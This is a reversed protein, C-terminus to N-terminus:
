EQRELVLATRSPLYVILQHRVTGHDKVSRSVFQQGSAIRSHGGFREEDSDLLLAYKGPHVDVAYDSFSQSPHFNFLFVLDGREVAIIKDDNHLLLSRPLTTELLNRDRVLRIISRDFDALYHYKLNKNDRLSWQRRAYHYSWDNGERPFDVWEPHGFENGMFNLYGHAASALTALRIIKHLAIGRDVNIDEASKDMSTYMNAGILEFVATKGGVLAQDHSEVYSVTKEEGRRNVLEHWLHDMNWDQDRVDNIYKFWCDPIGMALRYDFGCGGDGAPAALGPMGSVDEAITIADPRLEHILRNALALYTVADEDVGGDFYREYSDFARGLGHDYYLMSTVGDFRFGDVHYEDLWFRCNSLLFHLAEPKGYNFCRSDWAVHDGRQGDHFYLYPTGDFRSLGEAENKVAHSHVLDIVVRIGLGHATDILSKLEEPTGFRSSAAFFNSVHYGFSGYYPHEMVAMLQVTNYGAHHIRPLINHRFEEYTGVAGKEQAMGVHSEYILPATEPARWGPRKWRYDEEPAWVQASFIHTHHDQVVRRAYAPIRSGEGGPWTMRLHYLDEHRISDGPLRIEWTGRDDIREMRYRDLVQWDSFTGSLHISSANPAYERFIWEGNLAHLGFFEHGSAFDALSTEGGTLVKETESLRDIRREFVDSYPSLYPDDSLTSLQGASCKRM